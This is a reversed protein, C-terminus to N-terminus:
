SDRKQVLLPDALFLSQPKPSGDADRWGWRIERAVFEISTNSRPDGGMGAEISGLCGWCDGGCDGSLPDVAVNLPHGCIACNSM